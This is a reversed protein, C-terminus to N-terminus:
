EGLRPEGRTKKSKNLGAALGIRIWFGFVVVVLGVLMNIWDIHYCRMAMVLFKCGLEMWGNMHKIQAQDTEIHKKM